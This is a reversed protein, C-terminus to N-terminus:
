KEKRRISFVDRLKQLYLDKRGMVIVHTWQGCGECLELKESFIYKRTPENTQNIRNWCILCYEAM